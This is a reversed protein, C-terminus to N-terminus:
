LVGFLGFGCGLIKDLTWRHCSGEARERIQVLAEWKSGEGRRVIFFPFNKEERQEWYKKEVSSIVNNYLVTFQVASYHLATGNLKSIFDLSFM